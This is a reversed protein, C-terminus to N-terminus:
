LKDVFCAIVAKLSPNLFSSLGLKKIFLLLLRRKQQKNNSSKLYTDDESFAQKLFSMKKDILM